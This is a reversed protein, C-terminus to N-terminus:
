KYRPTLKQIDTDSFDAADSNLWTKVAEVLKENNHFHQLGLCTKLCTFLHYDSSALDPNYPRHDFLEWNFHELLARTRAATSTHQRTRDHLLVVGFIVMGRTKNQIASHLKKLMERHVESMITTGQQKFDVM